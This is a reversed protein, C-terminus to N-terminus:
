RVGASSDFSEQATSATEEPLLGPLLLITERGRGATFHFVQYPSYAISIPIEFGDYDHNKIIIPPKTEGIISMELQEKVLRFTRGKEGAINVEGVRNLTATTHKQIDRARHAYDLMTRTHGLLVAAAAAVIILSVIVELLTFGDQPRRTL